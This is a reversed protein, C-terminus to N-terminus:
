LNHELSRSSTHTITFVAISGSVAASKVTSFTSFTFYICKNDNQWDSINKVLNNLTWKSKIFVTYIYLIQYKSYQQQVLPHNEYLVHGSYFCSKKNQM